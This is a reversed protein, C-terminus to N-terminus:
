GGGGGSHAPDHGGGALVGGGGLLTLVCGGLLTGPGVHLRAREALGIHIAPLNPAPSSTPTTTPIKMRRAADCGRTM